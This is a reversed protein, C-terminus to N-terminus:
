GSGLSLHNTALKEGCLEPILRLATCTFDTTFLPASPYAKSRPSRNQRNMNLQWRSSSCPVWLCCYWPIWDREVTFHLFLVHSAVCLGSNISCWDATIDATSVADTLLLTRQQYQSLWCYHGSNISRWGAIIDATWVAVTLLLTRQQYQVLWCYHGSNVSRWDVTIDV